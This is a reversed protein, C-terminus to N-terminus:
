RSELNKQTQEIVDALFNGIIPLTNINSLIGILVASVIAFGITVGISWFIGGVIGKRAEKIFEKKFV